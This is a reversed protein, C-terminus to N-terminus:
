LAADKDGAGYQKNLWRTPNKKFIVMNGRVAPETNRRFATSIATLEV